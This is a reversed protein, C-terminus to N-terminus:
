SSKLIRSIQCEPMLMFQSGISDILTQFNHFSTVMSMTQSLRLSRQMPLNKRNRHCTESPMQLVNTIMLKFAAVNEFNHM